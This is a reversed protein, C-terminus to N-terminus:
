GIFFGYFNHGGSLATERYFIARAYEDIRGAEGYLLDLHAHFGPPVPRVGKNTQLTKEM